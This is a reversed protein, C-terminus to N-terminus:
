FKQKQQNQWLRNKRKFYIHERRDTLRKKASDLLKHVLWYCYFSIRRYFPLGKVVKWGEDSKKIVTVGTIFVHGCSKPCVTVQKNLRACEEDFEKKEKASM